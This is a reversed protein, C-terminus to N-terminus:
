LKKLPLCWRGHRGWFNNSIIEFRLTFNLVQRQFTEGKAKLSSIYCHGQPRENKYFKNANRMVKSNEQEIDSKESSSKLEEHSFIETVLANVVTCPASYARLCYKSSSVIFM